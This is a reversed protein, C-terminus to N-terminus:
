ITSQLKTLEVWPRKPPARPTAAVRTRCPSARAEAAANKLARYHLLYRPVPTPKVPPHSEKFRQWEREEEKQRRLERLREREAIAARTRLKLAATVGARHETTL